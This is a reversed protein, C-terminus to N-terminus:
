EQCRPYRYQFAVHSVLSQHNTAQWAATDSTILANPHFNNKAAFTNVLHLHQLLTNGTELHHTRTLSPKIIIVVFYM